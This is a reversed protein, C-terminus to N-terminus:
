CHQIHHAGLNRLATDAPTEGPTAHPSSWRESAKSKDSGTHNNSEQGRCGAGGREIGAKHKLKTLTQPGSVQHEWKTLEKKHSQETQQPISKNPPTEPQSAHALPSPQLYFSFGLFCRKLGNFQAALQLRVRFNTSFVHQPFALFPDGKVKLRRNNAM